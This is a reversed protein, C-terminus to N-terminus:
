AFVQVILVVIAITALVDFWLVLKELTTVRVLEVSLLAGLHREGETAHM